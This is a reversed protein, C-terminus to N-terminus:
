PPRGRSWPPAPRPPRSAQSVPRTWATVEKPVRSLFNVKLTTADIMVINDSIPQWGLVGDARTHLYAPIEVSALSAIRSTQWLTVKCQETVGMVAAGAPPLFDLPSNTMRLGLREAGKRFLILRDAGTDFILRAPKDNIKADVWIREDALSVLVRLFLALSVFITRM